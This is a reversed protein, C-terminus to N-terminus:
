GELGTEVGSFGELVAVSGRLNGREESSEDYRHCVVLVCKDKPMALLKEHTRDMFM